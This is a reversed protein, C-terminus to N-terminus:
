LLANNAQVITYTIGNYEVPDSPIGTVVLARGNSWKIIDSAKAECLRTPNVTRIIQALNTLSEKIEGIKRAYKEQGDTLEAM